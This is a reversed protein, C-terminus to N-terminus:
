SAARGRLDLVILKVLGTGHHVIFIAARKKGADLSIVMANDIEGEVDERPIRNKAAKFTVPIEWATEPVSGDDLVYRKFAKSGPIM